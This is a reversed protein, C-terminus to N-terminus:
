QLKLPAYLAIVEFDKDNQLLTVEHEICLAAVICDVPSRITKGQKRITRYLGSASM